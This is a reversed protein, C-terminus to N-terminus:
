REFFDFIIKAMKNEKRFFWCYGCYFVGIYAGLKADVIPIIKGICWFIFAFEFANIAFTILTGLIGGYRGFLSDVVGLLRAVVIILIFVATLSFIFEM